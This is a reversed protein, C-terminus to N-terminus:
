QKVADSVALDAIARAVKPRLRGPATGMYKLAGFLLINVFDRPITPLPAGGGPIRPAVM